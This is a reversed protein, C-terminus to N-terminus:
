AIAIATVLGSRVVAESLSTYSRSHSGRRMKIRLLSSGGSTDAHSGGSGLRARYGTSTTSDGFPAQSGSSGLRARASAVPVGFMLPHGTSSLLHQDGGHPFATGGSLRVQPIDDPGSMASLAPSTVLDSDTSLFRTSRTHTDSGPTQSSLVCPGFSATDTSPLPACRRNARVKAEKAFHKQAHTRIQTVTRTPIM